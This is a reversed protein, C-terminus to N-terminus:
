IGLTEQTKEEIQLLLMSLLMVQFYGSLVREGKVKNMAVTLCLFIDGWTKQAFWM